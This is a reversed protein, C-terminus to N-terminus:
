QKSYFSYQEFYSYTNYSIASVLMLPIFLTYGSTIEAILFIATLPASLVGSMVGCMGVLTFNSASLEYEQPLMNIGQAVLYGTMGGLFLSPGFIGGSGGSGITVASAVPKILIVGLVFIGLFVYSDIQSRFRTTCP